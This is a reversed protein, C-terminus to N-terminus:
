EQTKEPGMNHHADAFKKIRELDVENFKDIYTWATLAIRNDMGPRPVIILRHYDELLLSLQSVLNKCSESQFKESLEVEKAPPNEPTFVSMEGAVSVKMQMLPKASGTAINHIEIPEGEHASAHRILSLQFSVAEQDCNYSIVIYGHELSHILHGDSLVRDYVGRKAWVPFHTGSTPPNSNYTIDSIDTVHTQGLDAIKGGPLPKSSEMFLWALLGLFLITLIIIFKKDM